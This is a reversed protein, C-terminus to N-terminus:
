RGNGWRSHIYAQINRYGYGCPYMDMDLEAHYPNIANTVFNVDDGEDNFKNNLTDLQVQIPCKM